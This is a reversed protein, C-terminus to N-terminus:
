WEGNDEPDNSNELSEDDDESDDDYPYMQELVEDFQHRAPYFGAGRLAHVFHEFMEPWTTINFGDVSTVAVLDNKNYIDHTNITINISNSM